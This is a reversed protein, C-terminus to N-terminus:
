AMRKLFSYTGLASAGAFALAVLTGKGLGLVPYSYRVALAYVVVNVLGSVLLSKTISLSYAVGWSRALITLTCIYVVPFPAMVGGWVPGGVKSLYVSTSATSGSFLARALIQGPTYRISVKGASRIDWGKDLLQYSGALLLLFILLAWGFGPPNLLIILSAMLAWMVLAGAMGVFAGWRALSVYVVLFIGNLGMILPIPGTAESATQPTQVYGIFFLIIAVMTPLGGVLGGMKSGLREAAVTALTVMVSGVAFALLLKLYFFEEM